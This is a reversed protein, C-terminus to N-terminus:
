SLCQSGGHIYLLVPLDDGAKTGNPRWVNLALCNESVETVLVYANFPNPQGHVTRQPCAPGAATAYITSNATPTYPVPPRFRNNGATSEGYYIQLFGEVENAYIGQYTVGKNHVNTATPTAQTITAWLLALALSKM